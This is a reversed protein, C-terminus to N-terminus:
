LIGLIPLLGDPDPPTTPYALMLLVFVVRVRLSELLRTAKL